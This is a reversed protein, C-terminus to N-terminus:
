RRLIEVIAELARPDNKQGLWFIAKKRVTRSQHSTLKVLLPISEDDPLQSIGFVAKGRIEDDPDEVADRLAATAKEGAQTSLWFLAKGRIDHDGHRAIDVLTDTGGAIMALAVLSTERAKRVDGEAVARLLQISEAASIGEM